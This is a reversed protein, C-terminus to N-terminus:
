SLGMGRAAAECLDFVQEWLVSAIRLGSFENYTGTIYPM